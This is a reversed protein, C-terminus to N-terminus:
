RVDSKLVVKQLLKPFFRKLYIGMVEKQGIYAEYKQKKVAKLMKRAFDEPSLGKETARDQKNQASGDGTLANRSVDTNVFGPCIM